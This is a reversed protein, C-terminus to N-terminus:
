FSGRLGVGLTVDTGREEARRGKFDTFFFLVAGTVGAAATLGVFVIVGIVSIAFQLASSMLFLNVLGAVLIGILIAGKVRHVMLVSTFVLGALTLLVPGSGLDGLKVMSGPAAVVLGGQQLGIFAGFSALKTVKGNVLDGSPTFRIPQGLISAPENTKKIAALVNSRSPTQGSKCVAAIAELEQRSLLGGTPNHPYNLILLRTRPTILRELEAPDFSFGRSERLHIPVPRAGSAVIQSEYIPFGPNPYIVEDGENVLAMIVYFMIPKGGPVIVVNEAKVPIGRTEAIFDAITQRVEM